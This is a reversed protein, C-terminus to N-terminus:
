NKGQSREFHIAIKLNFYVREEERDSKLLFPVLICLFVLLFIAGIIRVFTPM